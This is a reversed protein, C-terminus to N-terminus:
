DEQNMEEVAQRYALDASEKADEAERTVNIDEYATNAVEEKTKVEEKAPASEVAVEEVSTQKM